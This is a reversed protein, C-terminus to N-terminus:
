KGFRLNNALTTEVVAAVGRPLKLVFGKAPLKIQGLLQVFRNHHM